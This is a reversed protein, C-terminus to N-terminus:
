EVPFIFAATLFSGCIGKVAAGWRGADPDIYEATRGRVMSLTDM